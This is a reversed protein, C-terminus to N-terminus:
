CRPARASCRSAPASSSAGEVHLVHRLRLGGQELAYMDHANSWTAQGRNDRLPAPQSDFPTADGKGGAGFWGASRGHRRHRGSYMM